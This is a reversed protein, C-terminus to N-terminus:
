SNSWYRAKLDKKYLKGNEGRPLAREFDISRPCKLDALQGRCWAMLEAALAPGSKGWKTPQVVAKVEEGFEPHPIGFVAVDAVDPHTVLVSEVEQPYINVGGSIIMFDKRDSLFLYGDEDVRGVDGMTSWDPQKPNRSAETKALDNHYTFSRGGSFYITGTEGITCEEGNDDCVHITGVVARGVSGPKRLWEESTISTHGNGESGAYYEYVIPGLWEIMAHKVPIPCPAASHIVTRLSSLDYRQRVEAPLKLLRIMMTPVLQVATVSYRELAALLAEAEFREMLVVKGGVAQIVAAFGLPAAHYLPACALYVSDQGLGYLKGFLGAGPNPQVPSGTVLLSRIGKPRGTTGSSYTMRVGVNEDCIPTEPQAACLADWSPMGPAAGISLLHELGKMAARADSTSQVANPVAASVVLAKAGSDNVIYVIESPMLRTSLPVLTIGSRQAGWYADLFEPCNNCLLGITDGTVLGLSRLAHAVRNARRELERYTIARDTAVDALAIATARSESFLRPHMGDIDWLARPPALYGVPTENTRNRHGGWRANWLVFSSALAAAPGV